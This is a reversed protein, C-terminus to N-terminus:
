RVLDTFLSLETERLVRQNSLFNNWRCRIIRHLCETGFPDVLREMDSALSFNEDISFPLVNIERIRVSNEPM